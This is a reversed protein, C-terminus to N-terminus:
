LNNHSGWNLKERKEWTSKGIKRAQMSREWGAVFGFRISTKIDGHIIRTFENEVPM